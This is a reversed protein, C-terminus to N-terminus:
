VDTNGNNLLKRGFINLGTLVPGLFTKKELFHPRFLIKLNEYGWLCVTSVSGRRQRLNSLILTPGRSYAFHLVVGLAFVYGAWLLSIEGM